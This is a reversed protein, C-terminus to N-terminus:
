QVFDHLSFTKEPSVIGVNQLVKAWSDIMAFLRNANPFQFLESVIPTKSAVSLPVGAYKALIATASAKHTDIWSAAEKQAKQFREIVNAHKSAWAPQAVWFSSVPTSSVSFQPDGLYTFGNARITSAFPQAALAADITGASLEQPMDSFPVQRFTVSSPSVGHQKLLYETSAFYSGALAPVGISKGALSEISKISPKAYLQAAPANTADVYAEGPQALIQLGHTVANILDAPNGADINLDKGVAPFSTTPSTVTELTVNLHQARFYGKDQAVIAPLYGINPNYGVTLSTFSSSLASNASPTTSSCASALSAIVALAIVSQFYQKRTSGQHRSRAPTM